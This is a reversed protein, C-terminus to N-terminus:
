EEDELGEAKRIERIYVHTMFGAKFIRAKEDSEFSASSDIQEQFPAPLLKDRWKEYMNKKM